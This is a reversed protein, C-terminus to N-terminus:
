HLIPINKTLWITFKDLDFKKLDKVGQCSSLIAENLQIQTIKLGFMEVINIIETMKIYHKALNIHYKDFAEEMVKRINEISSDVNNIAKSKRMRISRDGVSINQVSVDM